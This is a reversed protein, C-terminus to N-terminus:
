KINHAKLFINIEHCLGKKRRKEKRDVEAGKVKRDEYRAWSQQLFSIKFGTFEDIL